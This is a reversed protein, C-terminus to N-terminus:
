CRRDSCLCRMVPRGIQSLVAQLKAVVVDPLGIIGVVITLSHIKGVIRVQIAGILRVDSRMPRYTLTIDECPNGEYPRCLRMRGLCPCPNCALGSCARICEAHEHCM